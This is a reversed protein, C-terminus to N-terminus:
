NNELKENAIIIQGLSIGGDNTPLKSHSYVRFNSEELAKTLGILLYNNQFVGGSLVIDNIKYLNRLKICVEKSFDIVTNHFRQSIINKSVNNNIDDIISNIIKTTDIILKNNEEKIEYNYYASDADNILSELEIAGQGEYTVQHCIDLLSSIADFFRGMSSTEISNIKNDIIKLIIESKSGYFKKIYESYKPQSKYLHAVGMRWPELIGKEGGPMLIYDLHAARHFNEYDCILFESGWIKGDLGYGTGDFSLGIVKKSIQNEVMCSVIHAHHHQVQILLLEKSKAYETSYYGPHLDCVLYEPTFSFINSFHNINNKYHHFTEINKLDGNHPSIFLLNDKSICATNKMNSGYALIPKLKNFSLPEPAYGRARRIVREKGLVVKTVSDDIPIYIDRNHMLFYDVLDGLNKIASENIYELPLGHNNASTMILIDIDKSLLLEHLPTFPLMVGLSSQNPSIAEPLNYSPLKDLLVIPKKNSSLLEEEKSNVKCYKKVKNIDKMMVALPKHLRNKRKRLLEVANNNEGDCVLHFGSLGKVAFIHGEKLKKITWDIIMENIFSQNDSSSISNSSKKFLSEISINKGENDTLYIHPGCKDCANPQAHFRRDLPDIYEAECEKCMKFESMTTSVRDYPINKVISYRPGCNTCNTFPYFYRRNDTDLIESKCKECTAIDPSILTIKGNSVVSEKILFESFNCPEQETININEIKSLPPPNITLQNVFEDISSPSGEIDIFVGQSSNNVWGNLNNKIAISYIFPRFGVGQIIGEVKIFIRRINM